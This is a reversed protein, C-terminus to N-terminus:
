TRIALARQARLLQRFTVGDHQVDVSPRHKEGGELEGIVQVFRANEAFSATRFIASSGPIILLSQVKSM